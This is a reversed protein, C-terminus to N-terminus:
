CRSLIAAMINTKAAPIEETFLVDTVNPHQLLYKHLNAEKMAFKLENMRFVSAMPFLFYTARCTQGSQSFSFRKVTNINCGM